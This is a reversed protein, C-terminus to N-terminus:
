SWDPPPVSTWGQPAQHPEESHSSPPPGLTPVPAQLAGYIQPGQPRPGRMGNKSEQARQLPPIPLGNIDKVSRCENAWHNGKKCRPCTGPPRQKPGERVLPASEGAQPCQRKFHGLQGCKFCGKSNQTQQSKTAALVAAALGANSLPGGIERCAKIWAEIGKKRVPNIARQCEKTSQEYILQLVFPMTHDATGITKEAAEMLRAAFDAFPETSGQIIKTLNGAVEGKNPVDRWARYHISNVQQYVEIPFNVQDAMHPGLGLLMDATWGPHGNQINQRAQTQANDTVLSKWELFQGKSLCAKALETWDTPTLPATIISDPCHGKNRQHRVASARRARCFMNQQKIEHKSPSRHKEVQLCTLSSGRQGTLSDGEEKSPCNPTKGAPSSLNVYHIPTLYVRRYYSEHDHMNERSPECCVNETFHENKHSGTLSLNSSERSISRRRPGVCWSKSRQTRSSLCRQLRRSSHSGVEVFRFPQSSMTRKKRFSCPKKVKATPSLINEWSCNCSPSSERSRSRTLHRERSFRQFVKPLHEKIKSNEVERQQFYIKQGASSARKERLSYKWSQEQNSVAPICFTHAVTENKQLDQVQGPLSKKGEKKKEQVNKNHNLVDPGSEGSAVWNLFMNSTSIVGKHVVSQPQDKICVHTKNTAKHNTLSIKSTKSTSNGNPFQKVASQPKEETKDWQVHITKPQKKDQHSTMAAINESFPLLPGSPAPKSNVMIPASLCQYIARQDYTEMNYHSHVFSIFEHLFHYTHQLLYPELLHIFSESDLDYKTMHHLIAALINKVTYGYDGYVATLERKLWPVLRHLSKPNTKFYHASLHKKLKCGQVYKVWIGSYYLARRFKMVMHDRFIGLSIYNPQFKVSNGFENLLDQITLERLPKMKSKFDEPSWTLYNKQLSGVSSKEEPHPFMFDEKKDNEMRNPCCQSLTHQTHRSLMSKNSSKSYFLGDGKKNFSSNWDSKSEADQLCNSCECNSSFKEPM